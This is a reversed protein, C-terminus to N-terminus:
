CWHQYYQTLVTNPRIGSSTTSRQFLDDMSLVVAPLETAVRLLFSPQRLAQPVAHAIAYQHQYHRKPPKLSISSYLQMQEIYSAHVAKCSALSSTAQQRSSRPPLSSSADTSGPGAATARCRTCRNHHWELPTHLKHTLSLDAYTTLCGNNV